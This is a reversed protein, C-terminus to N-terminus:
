PRKIGRFKWGPKTITGDPLLVGYPVRKGNLDYYLVRSTNDWEEQLFHHYYKKTVYQSWRWDKFQKIFKNLFQKM